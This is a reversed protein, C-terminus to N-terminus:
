SEDPHSQNAPLIVRFESGQGPQSNVELRGGHRHIFERCLILGLGTGPEQETGKTKHATDISFLTPIREQPIGVGNDSVIIMCGEECSTVVVKVEGNKHTFKLANTLLNRIVTHIMNRDGTVGDCAGTEALIRINKREALVSVLDIAEEVMSKLHLPEPKFAMSRTHSRAWLLLNELLEHAQQSSSHIHELTSRVKGADKDYAGMLLVDTLGIIANFPNRLDHAIISFFKDKSVNLENLEINKELIEKKQAEIQLTRERVKQELMKRDRIHNRERIKIYSYIAAIILLIYLTYALSSRYWPPHIRITMSVGTENWRGDNNSGIVRLIYEGPQLGSFSVFNRNGIDVWDEDIGELKYAFRNKAPNTFELAAFEISFSNETYNLDILQKERFPISTRIGKTVSSASTFVIPPIHPNDRISDPYFSNFGNMGGVLIEGDPCLCSAGLNFEPSQLGEETTFTRFKGSAPDFRCLGNGTAFWLQNQKDKLISYILNGPIGQEQAFYDFIGKQRDWRNVYTNTGIWINGGSDEAICTIFNDALSGPKGGNKSYHKMNGTGPHYVDLGNVTGIWIWGQSDEFLAYVLNASLKLSQNHDSFHMTQGTSTNVMYLGDQTAIWYNRKRDQIMTYIRLGQLGPFTKIGTGEAPRVFSRNVPDYVLLGDRSGLWIRRNADAMITHIYDNPIAYRGSMRSTYHEVKGTKRDYLNLGEGWTGVWLIGAQDKYLSAIVNGTLDVSSPTNNKRYLKFKPRKLDTKNIGSLTGIWLNNSRDVALSLVINHNIGDHDRSFHDVHVARDSIISIRNLGGGETAAWLTGDTETLLDRIFNGSLGTGTNYHLFSRTAAQFLNLGNSTGIWLQGANGQHLATIHNDSISGADDASHLYRTFRKSSAQFFALGRTTGIWLNGTADELLPLKHDNVAGDYPLGSHFHNYTHKVPDMVTLVPPTNIYIMGDRACKVDYIYNTVDMEYPVPYSFRRFQKERFYFKNLGSKTGIWLNGEADEDIAYIWNNSISTSDGPKYTYIEFTYGNFCNLGNQTGIWIFGRSDQFICNVVSQSLGDAIAYSSFTFPNAFGFTVGFFILITLTVKKIM